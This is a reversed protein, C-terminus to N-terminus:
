ISQVQEQRDKFDFSPNTTLIFFLVVPVKPPGKRGPALQGSSSLDQHHRGMTTMAKM